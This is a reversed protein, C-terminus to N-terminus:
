LCEALFASWYRALMVQIRAADSSDTTRELVHQLTQAICNKQKVTLLPMREEWLERLFSRDHRDWGATERLYALKSALLARQEAVSRREQDSLEPIHKELEPLYDESRKRPDYFNEFTRDEPDEWAEYLLSDLVGNLYYDDGSEDILAFLFAPLYYQYGKASLLAIESADGIHERLPRLEEWTKSEVALLLPEDIYRSSAPVQDIPPRELGGFAKEICRALDQSRM